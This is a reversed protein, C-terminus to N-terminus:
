GLKPLLLYGQSFGLKEDNEREIFLAFLRAKGAYRPSGELVFTKVRYFVQPLGIHYLSDYYLHTSPRFEQDLSTNKHRLGIMGLKRLRRGARQIGDIINHTHDVVQVLSLGLEILQVILFVDELTKEGAELVGGIVGAGIDIAKFGFLTMM